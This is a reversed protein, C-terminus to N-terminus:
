KQPTPIREHIGFSSLTRHYVEVCENNTRCDEIHNRLGRNELKPNQRGRLMVADNDDCNWLHERLLKEGINLEHETGLFRVLEQIGRCCQRWLESM